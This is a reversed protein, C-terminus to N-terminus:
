SENTLLKLAQKFFEKVRRQFVWLKFALSDLISDCYLENKFGGLSLFMLYEEPKEKMYEQLLYRQKHSM